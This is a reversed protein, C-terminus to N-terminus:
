LFGDQDGYYILSRLEREMFKRRRLNAAAAAAALSQDVALYCRAGDNSSSPPGYAQLQPGTLGSTSNPLPFRWIQGSNNESAYFTKNAGPYIAGWQNQGTVNGLNTIETWTYNQRSFRMLHSQSPNLSYGLSWLYPGTGPVHVWDITVYPPTATGNVITQGYTPSGPKLDVATFVGGGIAAWWLGNSDFDACNYNTGTRNLPLLNQWAGSGGIRILYLTGNVNNSAYLYNDFPNFGM